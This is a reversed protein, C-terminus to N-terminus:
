YGVIIFHKTFSTSNDNTTTFGSVTANTYGINRYSVNQTSTTNSYSFGAFWRHTYSLAFVVEVNTKGVAVGWNFIVNNIVLVLYLHQVMVLLM